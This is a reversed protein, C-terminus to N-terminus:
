SEDGELTLIDLAELLRQRLTNVDADPQILAAKLRLLIAQTNQLREKVDLTGGTDLALFTNPSTVNGTFVAEGSYLLRITQTANKYLRLGDSTSPQIDVKTNTTDRSFVCYGNASMAINGGGFTATGDGIISVANAGNRDTIQFSQFASTGSGSRGIYAESNSSSSDSVKIAPDSGRILIGNAASGGFLGDGDANLSIKDSINIDNSFSSDTNGQLQISM